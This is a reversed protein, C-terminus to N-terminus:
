PTCRIEAYAMSSVNGLDDIANFYLACAVPDACYGPGFVVSGSAGSVGKVEHVTFSGPALAVITNINNTASWSVTYTHSNCTGSTFAGISITPGAPQNPNNSQNNNTQTNVPANVNLFAPNSLVRAASQSPPTQQIGLVKNLKDSVKELKGVTRKELPDKGYSIDSIVCAVEMAIGVYGAGKAVKGYRAAKSLQEVGKYYKQALEAGKKVAKVAGRTGYKIGKETSDPGEEGEPRNSCFVDEYWKVADGVYPIDRVYNMGKAINSQVFNITKTVGGNTHEDGWAIAADRGTRYTNGAWAVVDALTKAGSQVLPHSRIQQGVSTNALYDYGKQLMDRVPGGTASDIIKDVVASAVPNSEIKEAVYTVTQKVPEVVASAVSKGVSKVDDWSPWLGLPDTQNVPNNSVYVYLNLTDSLELIPTASDRATFRGTTSDYVRYRYDYLGDRLKERGTYGLESAFDGTQNYVDGFATYDYSALLAGAEDTIARVSNLGDGHYFITEDGTQKSILSDIGLASTYRALVNGDTDLEAIVNYNVPDVIYYVTAGDTTMSLKNGNPYYGFEQVVGDSYTVSQVRNESTYALATTLDGAVKSTLNGMSDYSYTTDGAQVLQNAENYTYDVAGNTGTYSLRNGQSDYAFTESVGNPYSAEVLRSLADYTYTTADGALNTEGIIAGMEDYAYDSGVLPNGDADKYVMSVVNDLDDYAIELQTGNPYTRKVMNGASDYEFTIVAGNADTLSTLNGNLNYEYTTRGGDGDIMAVRRGVNDYEFQYAQTFADTEITYGVLQNLVDYDYTLTANNNTATAVLGNTGYTLTLVDGDPLQKQALQHGENYTYATETGDPAVFLVAQGFSNYEYRSANGLPDTVATLWGLENYQYTTINGNNDESSVLKGFHNYNYTAPNGNPDTSRVLRGQSDYEYVYVAGNKDVMKTVRDLLNYEYETANGASDIARIQRGKLDYEFTATNGNSDTITLLNGGADYTLNSVNGMADTIRIANGEADFETRSTAGNPAIVTIPNNVADYEYSTVHGLKNTMRLMRGNVDYEITEVSGDSYRYEVPRQLFPDYVYEIRIGLTDTEAVVNGNADYETLTFTGDDFIEKTRNGLVDYEYTTIYGLADTISLLQGLSDYTYTTINGAPDTETLRNGLVDYTYTTTEGLTNTVSALNGATDYTQSVVGGLPNTTTLVNGFEDYTYEVVAGLSDTIRLVNGNDDYLITTEGGYVDKSSTINGNDDYTYDSVVNGLKDTETLLLGAENYTRTTVNGLADKIEVM